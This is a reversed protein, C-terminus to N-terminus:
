FIAFYMEIDKFIKTYHACLASATKKSDRGALICNPIEQFSSEM